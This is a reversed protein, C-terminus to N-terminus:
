LLMEKSKRAERTEKMMKHTMRMKGGGVRFMTPIKLPLQVLLAHVKPLRAEVILRHIIVGTRSETVLLSPYQNVM